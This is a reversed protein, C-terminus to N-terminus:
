FLHLNDRGFAVKVDKCHLLYVRNKYLFRLDSWIIDIDDTIISQIVGLSTM